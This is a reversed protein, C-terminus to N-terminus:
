KSEAGDGAAGGAGAGKAKGGEGKAAAPGHAADSGAGAQKTQVRARNLAARLSDARCILGDLCALRQAKAEPSGTSAQQNVGAGPSHRLDTKTVLAVLGRSSVKLYDFLRQKCALCSLLGLLSGDSPGGPDACELATRVMTWFDESSERSKQKIQPVVHWALYALFHIEPVCYLVLLLDEVLSKWYQFDFVSEGQDLREIREALEPFYREYRLIRYSVDLLMKSEIGEMEDDFTKNMMAVLMNFFLVNTIFVWFVLLGSTLFDPTFGACDYPKTRAAEIADALGDGFSIEMMAFATDVLSRRKTLCGGLATETALLSAATPPLNNNALYTLNQAREVRPLIEDTADMWTLYEANANHLTQLALLFALFLMGYMVLFHFVDKLLFRYMTQVLVGLGRYPKCVIFLNFFLVLAAISTANKETRLSSVDCKYADGTRQGAVRAAGITVFLGAAIIHFLSELNMFAFNVVEDRSMKWNLDEDLDTPRLRSQVKALRLLSPVGYVVLAAQLRGSDSDRIAGWGCSGEPGVRPAPAAVPADSWWFNHELVSLRRRWWMLGFLLLILGFPLVTDAFHVLYYGRSWKRLVLKRMLGRTHEYWGAPRFMTILEVASKFHPSRKQIRGPETSQSSDEGATGPFIRGLAVDGLEKECWARVKSRVTAPVQDPPQADPSGLECAIRLFILADVNRGLDRSSLNAGLGSMNTELQSYDVVDAEVSGFRWYPITFHREWIHRFM